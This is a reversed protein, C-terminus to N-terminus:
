PRKVFIKKVPHHYVLHCKVKPSSLWVSSDVFSICSYWSSLWMGKYEVSWTLPACFWHLRSVTVSCYALSSSMASSGAQLVCWLHTMTVYLCVVCLCHSWSVPLHCPCPVLPVGARRDWSYRLFKVARLICCTQYQVRPARWVSSRMTPTESRLFNVFRNGPFM